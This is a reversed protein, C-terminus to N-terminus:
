WDGYVVQLSLEWRTRHKRFLGPNKKSLYGLLLQKRSGLFKFSNVEGKALTGKDRVWIDSYQRQTIAQILVWLEKKKGSSFSLLM